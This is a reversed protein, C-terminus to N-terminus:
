ASGDLLQPVVPIAGRENDDNKQDQEEATAAVVAAAAPPLCSFARGYLSPVVARGLSKTRLYGLHDWARSDGTYGVSIAAVKLFLGPM